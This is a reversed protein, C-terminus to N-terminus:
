VLDRSAKLDKMASQFAKPLDDVYVTRRRIGEQVAGAALLFTGVADSVIPEPFVVLALGVKILLPKNGNKWLKQTAAASGATEELSHALDAHSRSLEKVSATLAKFEEAKV